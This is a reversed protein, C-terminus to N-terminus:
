KQLGTRLEREIVARANRIDGFWDATIQNYVIQNGPRWFRFKWGDSEQIGARCLRINTIQGFPGAPGDVRCLFSYYEESEVVREVVWRDLRTGIIKDTNQIKLRM